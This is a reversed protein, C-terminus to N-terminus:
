RSREPTSRPCRCREVPTLPPSTHLRVKVLTNGISAFQVVGQGGVRCNVTSYLRYRNFFPTEMNHMADLAVELQAM